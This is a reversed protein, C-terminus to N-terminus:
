YAHRDKLVVGLTRLIIKLDLGISWNRLYELDHEIRARMKDLTETEGRLGNVQAWGTIGPKVKHRVMYGKILKRYTENHAVAHPRPGVISMRGQLVNVFQPLEDLSTRRLLGGLRTVRSDNRTAQVIQAGEECVTMSRFKYVIFEDGSLGYRRQRFIVPGRSELKIGIAIAVMVPSALLLILMSLVIDCCRKLLSNIGTFPTECVAVVPINGVQDFRAQVLDTVFTDPVFYVSVTTDRLADLLQLIRPQTTMPLSLYLVDIRLRRIGDPVDQMAGLLSFAGPAPIRQVVRDDFFGIVNAGSYRDGAIQNALALGQENMGAVAVRKRNGPLQLLWPASTRVLIHLALQLGPALWMWWILIESDFYRIYGTAMGFFLMLGAVGAWGATVSKLLSKWSDHLHTKGPFTLSFAILALLLYRPDVHGKVIYATALLSAVLALPDLTSEALRLLSRGGRWEFALRPTMIRRVQGLGTGAANASM